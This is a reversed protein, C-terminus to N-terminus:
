PTSELEETLQRVQERAEDLRRQTLELKAAKEREMDSFILRFKIDVYDGQAIEMSAPVWVDMRDRMRQLSRDVIDLVTARMEDDMKEWSELSTAEREIWEDKEVWITSPDLTSVKVELSLGDGIDIVECSNM